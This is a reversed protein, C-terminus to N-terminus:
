VTEGGAACQLSLSVLNGFPFRHVLFSFYVNVVPVYMLFLISFYIYGFFILFANTNMYNLFIGLNALCAVFM